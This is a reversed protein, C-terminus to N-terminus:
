PSRRKLQLWDTLRTPWLTASRRRSSMSALSSLTDGGKVIHLVGDMPPVVLQDGVRLLDPNSQLSPNAWQITEPRLGYRRAINQLNDGPKVTYRRVTDIDSAKALAGEQAEVDPAQSAVAPESEGRSTSPKIARTLANGDDSILGGSQLPTDVPGAQARVGDAPINHLSFRLDPLDTQRVVIVLAAVILVAFHSALRIPAVQERLFRQMGSLLDRAAEGSADLIDSRSDELAAENARAGSKMSPPPAQRESRGPAEPRLTAPPSPLLSGRESALSADTRHFSRYSFRRQEVHEKSKLM